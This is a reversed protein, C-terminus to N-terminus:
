APADTLMDMYAEVCLGSDFIEKALEKGVYRFHWPEYYIGTLKTQGYPYRMIFGYEWSHQALWDYVTSGSKVDVALGLQHESTGPIAISRSTEAEAASRSYGQGVLKNVKREFLTTQYEYSRYASTLNFPLGQALVADRMEALADHCVAAIKYDGFEVLEVTYDEPVKNWPNVLVFYKGSSTFYRAIGDIVVKGVAMTGDTHFYYRDEGLELWGTHLIGEETLYYTKEGDQLWGTHVSGDATIYCRGRDTDVWGSLVSGTESLYCLGDATEVWGTQMVGPEGFYFRGEAVDLWGTHMTGDDNLYYRGASADLWGTAMSGDENFYYRGASSDLWGTHMTGDERFYHRQGDLEAWGITKQGDANLYYQGDATELWGTVMAGSHNPDFYYAAGDVQQWGMLADGDYNLYRLSGDGGTSWGSRDFIDYGFFVRANVPFLLALFLLAAIASLIYVSRKNLKM